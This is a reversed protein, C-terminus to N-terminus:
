VGEGLKAKLEAIEAAQQAVVARWKKNAKRVGRREGKRMANGRASAEINTADFRMRELNKLEDAASVTRYAKIVKEMVPVELAEIQQLDEETRARFLSLWLKLTDNKSITKPLKPLEFYHLSMRDTLPTYRTVELPQYESHFELCNFLNFYLISVVITRPLEIYDVGENLASSYERAWYYLTREPYDGENRVQLELDLKQKNVIMNIDLRCLKNGIIDPTLEPNTIQFNKIDRLKICLLDAILEKLLDPNRVFLLKFLTDNRFTYELTAM